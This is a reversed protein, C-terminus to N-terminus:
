SNKPPTQLQYSYHFIAASQFFLSKVATTIYTYCNPLWYWRNEYEEAMHLLAVNIVDVIQEKLQLKRIRILCTSGQIESDYAMYDQVSTCQWFFGSGRARTTTQPIGKMNKFKSM